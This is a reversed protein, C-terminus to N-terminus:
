MTKSSSNSKKHMECNFAASLISHVIVDAPGHLYEPMQKAYKVVIQGIQKMTANTMPCHKMKSDAVGVIYGQCLPLLVDDECWRLLKNGTVFFTDSAHVSLSIALLASAILAKM